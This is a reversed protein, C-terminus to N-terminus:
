HHPDGVPLREQVHVARLAAARMVSVDSATSPRMAGCTSHNSRPPVRTDSRPKGVDRPQWIERLQVQLVRLHAITAHAGQRFSGLSSYRFRM